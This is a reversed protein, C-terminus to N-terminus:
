RADGIAAALTCAGVAALSTAAGRVEERLDQPAEALMAIATEDCCALDLAGSLVFLAEGAPRNTMFRHKAAQYAADALSDRLATPAATSATM